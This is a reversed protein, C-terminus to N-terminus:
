KLLLVNKIFIKERVRFSILYFGSPLNEPAWRIVGNGEGIKGEYIKSVKHGDVSYAEVIAYSATETEYPINVQLNFPNPYIEGLKLAIPKNTNPIGTALNFNVSDMAVGGGVFVFGDMPTEATAWTDATSDFVGNHNADVFAIVSKPGSPINDFRYRYNSPILTSEYVPAGGVILPYADYINIRVDSIPGPYNIRGAFSGEEALTIDIGSANGGVTRFPRPHMGAPDGSVPSFGTVMVAMAFYDLTDVFSGTISYPGPAYITTYSGSSLDSSNDGVAVFITGMRSGSYYVRGSITGATLEGLILLVMAFSVKKLM